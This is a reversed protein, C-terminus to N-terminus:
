TKAKQTKLCRISQWLPPSWKWCVFCGVVLATVVMILRHWIVRCEDKGLCNPKVDDLLLSLPKDFPFGASVLLSIAAIILSMSAFALGYQTLREIGKTQRQDSNRELFDNAEKAERLVDLYLGELDLHKHWYAYLEGGQLQNSVGNFWHRNTFDLLDELIKKVEIQRAVAQLTVSGSLRTSFVLLAAKNFHALLAMQTHLRRFDNAIVTNFFDSSGVAAFGYGVNLFRTNFTIDNDGSGHDDSKDSSWWRDYCHNADFDKLFQPSYPSKKSDGHYDAFGLRVWDGKTIERTDDVSIYALHPIREDEVQVYHGALPSLLSAYISDLPFRRHTFVEQKFENKQRELADTKNSGSIPPSVLLTNGKDFWERYSPYRGGEPRGAWYGPYTRRLFDVTDLAHSLKFPQAQLHPNLSLEV